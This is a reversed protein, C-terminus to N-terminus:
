IINYRITNYQITNYQITNYQITSYHIIDYSIIILVVSSGISILSYNTGKSAARLKQADEAIKEEDLGYKVQLMTYVVEERKDKEYEGREELTMADIRNREKIVEM